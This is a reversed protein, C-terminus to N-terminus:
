VLFLDCGVNCVSVLLLANMPECGWVGQGLRTMVEGIGCFRGRSDRALGLVKLRSRETAMSAEGRGFYVRGASGCDIM